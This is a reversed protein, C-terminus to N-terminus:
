SLSSLTTFRVNFWSGLTLSTLNSGSVAIDLWSVSLGITSGLASHKCNFNLSTISQDLQPTITVIAQRYGRSCDTGALLPATYDYSHETQVGSHINEIM